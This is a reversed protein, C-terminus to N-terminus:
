RGPFLLAQTLGSRLVGSVSHGVGPILTLHQDTTITTGFYHQLYDYYVQGRELRHNGQFMAHCSVDLFEHNPDNDEEGLLYEIKRLPYQARIQAPGRNFAYRCDELGQLGFKYDDYNPCDALQSGSPLGFSGGSQREGNFYLYSSPNAVVYLLELNPLNAEVGNIAAYRNVFQGGASHGFLVVRKLNPYEGPLRAILTDMVAFSSLPIQAGMQSYADYGYKWGGWGSEWFVYDLGMDHSELDEQILYQIALLAFRGPDEGSSQRAEKLADFQDMSNRHTGPVLIVAEEVTSASGQDQCYPVRYSAGGVKVELGFTCTTAVPNEKNKDKCSGAVFLFALCVLPGSKLLGFIRFPAITKKM